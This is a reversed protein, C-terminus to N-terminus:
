KKRPRVKLKSFIELKFKGETKLPDGTSNDNSLDDSDGGVGRSSGGLYPRSLIKDM